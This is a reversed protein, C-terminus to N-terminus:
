LATATTNVMIKARRTQCSRMLRRSDKPMARAMPATTNMLRTHYLWPLDSATAPAQSPTSGSGTDRSCRATRGQFGALMSAATADGAVHKLMWEGEEQCLRDHKPFLERLLFLAYKVLRFPGYARVTEGPMAEVAVSYLDM